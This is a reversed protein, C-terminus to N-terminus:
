ETITLNVTKRQRQYYNDNTYADVKYTGVATPPTKSRTYRTKGTGYYEVYHSIEDDPKFNSFIEPIVAHPEGDYKVTM